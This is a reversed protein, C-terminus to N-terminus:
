GSYVSEEAGCNACVGIIEWSGHRLLFLKCGCRCILGVGARHGEDFVMGDRPDPEQLFRQGKWEHFVEGDDTVLFRYRDDWLKGDRRQQEYFPRDTPHAKAVCRDLIQERYAPAPRLREVLVRVSAM